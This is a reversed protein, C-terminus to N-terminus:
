KTEINYNCVFEYCGADPAQDSFRSNGEKDLPYLRAYATDAINRAPAVSDLHFDYYRYDTHSYYTNAFLTDDPTAYVNHRFFALHTTDAQLYNYTFEGLYYDPLPTALVLNNSRIGAIINNHFQTHTRADNKSLNNIYVAAMDERNVPQIQMDTSRFYSAITNHIFTHDGGALYICYQACNSIENNVATLHTNRLVLGYQACNHIRSNTLQLAPLNGNDSAMCYIGVSGSIIDAHNIIYTCNEGTNDPQMLYIGNWKGAVATYPVQTFIRDLRDGRFRIPQQLTGQANLNGYVILSANDHMYFTTGPQLTLTYATDICLYDYVLYPKDATLTTDSCITKRRFIEVDQGYAELRVTQVRNNVVFLIADEVLVPNNQDQPDIYAKVFIFLSDGGPLSINRMRQLDTEGDINIRFFQGNEMSVSKITVTQKTRNYVKMQLTVTTMSTFVTDFRLTDTDFSIQEESNYAPNTNCAAILATIILCYICHRLTNM